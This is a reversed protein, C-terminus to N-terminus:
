RGGAQLACRKLCVPAKYRVEYSIVAADGDPLGTSDDATVAPYPPELGGALWYRGNADRVVFALPWGVPLRMTTAFTISLSESLGNCENTETCVMLAKGDLPIEMVTVASVSVTVGALDDYVTGSNLNEAKVYGMWTIGPFSANM